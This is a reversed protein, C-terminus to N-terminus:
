EYRVLASAPRRALGVTALAGAGAALARRGPGRRRPRTGLPESAFGPGIGIGATLGDALAVYAWGSPCRRRPRRAPRHGRGRGRVPRRAPRHQLGVTRLVGIARARERTGSLTTAVLNVLAVLALLVAMAVM